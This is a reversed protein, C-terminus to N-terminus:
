GSESNSRYGPLLDAAFFRDVGAAEAARLLRLQMRMTSGPADGRLAAVVTRVRALLSAPLEEQEEGELSAFRVDHV